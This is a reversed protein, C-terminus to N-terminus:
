ITTPLNLDQLLPWQVTDLLANLQGESAWVSLRFHRLGAWDGKALEAADLSSIASATIDLGRLNLLPMSVLTALYVTDTMYIGITFAHVEGRVRSSTALLAHLAESPLLELIRPCTRLVDAFIDSNRMGQKAEHNLIGSFFGVSM